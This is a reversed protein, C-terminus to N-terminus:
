TKIELSTPLSQEQLVSLHALLAQRSHRVWDAQLEHEEDLLSIAGDVLYRLELRPHHTVGQIAKLRRFAPLGILLSKCGPEARADAHQAGHARADVQTPVGEALADEGTGSDAVDLSRALESRAAALWRRQAAPQEHLLQVFGEVLYRMDLRPQPLMAQLRKLQGFARAGVLVPRLPGRARAQRDTAEASVALGGPGGHDATSAESPRPSM